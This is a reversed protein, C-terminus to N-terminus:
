PVKVVRFFELPGGNTFGTASGIANTINYLNTGPVFNTPIIPNIARTWTKLNTSCYLEYVEYGKAQWLVNTGNFFTIKLNSSKNTPASGLWWEVLNSYGDGDFDNTMHRNPGAAPDSSGFFATRWSDPIGESYSDANISITKVTIFPSANVGDSYRAYLMDYFSGSAPDARPSDSYFANPTFEVNNGSISFTGAGSTADTTALTLNTTQLDYGRLQVLNIGPINPLTSPSTVIDMFRNYCYPPTNTRPHVQSSVNIDWNTVAAGRGDAHVMFYMIAQKLTQNPESPNQSSHALGITHGIEHTLVETFTSLTQMSVNTHQLVVWGNVTEHFDNGAVNGGSTWGTSPGAPIIWIHGGEGLVDGGSGSNTIFHYHDHLQIRLYGDWNGINASAQGFSQIGAFVYRLSTVNTWAALASRVAYLAQSQNIGAPLFDTDVLYPVPEGRDPLIFRAPIGDGGVLLNTAASFSNPTPIGQPTPFSLMAPSAAQDTVNSGPLPGTAATLNRLTQLLTDGAGTESNSPVTSTAASVKLASADGLTAYLSGDARRAVLFLREDGLKLQPASGDSEGRHAVSGGRHVLQVQAPLTGKFVEDVRIVARTYIHGDAPSQFPELGVVEGRFIAASTQIYRETTTPLYSTARTPCTFALFGALLLCCRITQNM